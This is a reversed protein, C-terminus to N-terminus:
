QGRIARAAQRWGNAQKEKGPDTSFEAWNPLPKGDYAVGGVAECYVTYLREAVTEPADHTTDARPDVITNEPNNGNPYPHVGGLEGLAEGLWHRVSQLETIALAKERQGAWLPLARLRKVVADLDRRVEKIAVIQEGLTHTPDVSELSEM